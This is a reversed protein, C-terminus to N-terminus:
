RARCLQDARRLASELLVACRENLGLMNAAATQGQREAVVWHEVRIREGFDVLHPSTYLGVKYGAQQLVAALMHSVSGKGNTGAIHITRYRTHPNNLANML